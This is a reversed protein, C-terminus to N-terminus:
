KAREKMAVQVCTGCVLICDSKQPADHPPAEGEPVQWGQWEAGCATRGDDDMLHAVYM